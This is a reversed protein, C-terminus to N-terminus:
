PVPSVDRMAAWQKYPCLRWSDRVTTAICVYDSPLRGHFVGVSSHVNGHGVIGLLADAM